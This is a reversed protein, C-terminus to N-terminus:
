VLGALPQPNEPLKEGLTKPNFKKPDFKQDPGYPVVKFTEIPIAEVRGMARWFGTPDHHDINYGAGSKNFATHTMLGEFIRRNRTKYQYGKFRVEVADAIKRTRNTGPVAEEQVPILRVRLTPHKPNSIFTAAAPLDEVLYERAMKRAFM